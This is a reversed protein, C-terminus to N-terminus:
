CDANCCLAAADTLPVHGDEPRQDGKLLVAGNAKHGGAINSMTGKVVQFHSTVNYLGSNAQKITIQQITVCLACLAALALFFLSDPKM